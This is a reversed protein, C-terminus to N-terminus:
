ALLSTLLMTFSLYMGHDREWWDNQMIRTLIGHETAMANSNAGSMRDLHVCSGFRPAFTDSHNLKQKPIWSHTSVLM